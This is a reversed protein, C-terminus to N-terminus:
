FNFGVSDYSKSSRGFSFSVMPTQKDEPLPALCESDSAAEIKEEVDETTGMPIKQVMGDKFVFKYTTAQIVPKEVIVSDKSFDPNERVDTKEEVDTSTEAMESIGGLALANFSEERAELPEVEIKTFAVTSPMAQFVAQKQMDQEIQMYDGFAEVAAESADWAPMVFAERAPFDPVSAALATFAAASEETVDWAIEPVLQAPYEPEIAGFAVFADAGDETVDWVPVEVSAPMRVLGMSQFDEFSVAADETVDWAIEPVLQAPYEPEIAGFAVFADAADDSIEWVPAAVFPEEEPISMIHDIFSVSAEETIDWVPIEVPVPEEEPIMSIYDAFSVSAEETVDWAPMEVPAPEEEPISMIHDIFATAAVDSVDWVPAEAVFPEEAPISSIFDTFSVSAEESIEWVPAEIVAPVEMAAPVEPAQVSPMEPVSRYFDEIKPEDREVFMIDFEDEVDTGDAEFPQDEEAITEEEIFSSEARIRSEVKSEVIEHSEVAFDFLDFKEEPATGRIIGDDNIGSQVMVDDDKKMILNGFLARPDIDEAPSAYDSSPHVEEFEEAVEEEIKMIMPESPEEVDQGEFLSNFDVNEEEEDDDEYEFEPYEQATYKPASEVPVSEPEAPTYEFEEAVPHPNIVVASENFINRVSHRQFYIGQMKEYGYDSLDVTETEESASSRFRSLDPKKIIDKAKSSLQGVGKRVNKTIADTNLGRDKVSGVLNKFGSSLKRSSDSM